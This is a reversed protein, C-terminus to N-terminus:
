YAREMGRSIRNFFLSFAVLMFFIVVSYAAAFGYRFPYVFAQDYVYTILIDTQGSPGGGTVLYIVNFMNFTWIFGLLAAPVITPKLLPLTVYRFKQWRSAGDVEAAEYLEEPISQLGGSFTMMMFSFGLWINVSIVAIMAYPMTGLWNIKEFGFVELVMNIPGDYDYIGRWVLCSIYSPVAWPLLLLTRYVIRGKMKRNLLVALALGISVHAVVCSVTWIFTNLCVMGFDPSQLVQAYMELGVFRYSNENDGQLNTFSLYFGYAVPYFTLILLGIMAPATYLYAIRHKKEKKAFYLAIAMYGCVIGAIAVFIPTPDRKPRLDEQKTPTASVIPSDTNEGTSDVTTVAFYYKVGVELNTSNFSIREADKPVCLYTEFMTEKIYGPYENGDIEYFLWNSTDEDLGETSNVVLITLILSMESVDTVNESSQYIKYETVGEVTNWTLKVCKYTPYTEISSVPSPLGKVNESIPFIAFLSFLSFSLLTVVCISFSFGSRTQVM